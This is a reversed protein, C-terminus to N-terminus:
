AFLYFGQSAGDVRSEQRNQEQTNNFPMSIACTLQRLPSPARSSVLFPVAPLEPAISYVHIHENWMCVRGTMGALGM